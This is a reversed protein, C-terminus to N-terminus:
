RRHVRVRFRYISLIRYFLSCSTSSHPGLRVRFNLYYTKGSTMGLIQVGLYEFLSPTGTRTSFTVENEERKSVVRKCKKWFTKGRSFIKRMCSTRGTRNVQCSEEGSLSILPAEPVAAPQAPEITSAADYPPITEESIPLNDSVTAEESRITLCGVLALLSLNILHM